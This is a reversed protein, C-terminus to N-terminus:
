LAVEQCVPGLNCYFKRYGLLYFTECYLPALGNDQHYYPGTTNRSEVPGFLCLAATCPWSLVLATQNCTGMLTMFEKVQTTIM